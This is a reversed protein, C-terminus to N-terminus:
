GRELGLPRGGPRGKGYWFGRLSPQRSAYGAITAHRAAGPTGRLDAVTSVVGVLRQSPAGAVGTNRAERLQCLNFVESELYWGVAPCNTGLRGEGGNTALPQQAFECFIFENM